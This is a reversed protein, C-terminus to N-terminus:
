PLVPSTLHRALMRYEESHVGGIASGISEQLLLWFLFTMKLFILTKSSNLCTIEQFIIVNEVLHSSSFIYTLPEIKRLPSSFVAIWSYRSIAM